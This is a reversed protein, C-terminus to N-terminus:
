TLSRFVLFPSYLPNITVLSWARRATTYCVIMSTRNHRIIPRPRRPATRANRWRRSAHELGVRWQSQTWAPKALPSAVRLCCNSNCVAWYAPGGFSRWIGGSTRWIGGFVYWPPLYSEDKKTNRENMLYVLAHVSNGTITEACCVHRLVRARYSFVFLIRQTHPRSTFHHHRNFAFWRIISRM